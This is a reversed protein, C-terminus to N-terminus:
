RSWTDWHVDKDSSLYLPQMEESNLLEESKFEERGRSNIKCSIDGMFDVQNFIIIIIILASPFLHLIAMSV